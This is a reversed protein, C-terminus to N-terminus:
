SFWMQFPLNMDTSCKRIHVHVMTLIQYKSLTATCRQWTPATKCRKESAKLLKQLEPILCTKFVNLLMAKRFEIMKFVFEKVMNSPRVQITQPRTSCEIESRIPTIRLSASCLCSTTTTTTSSSLSSSCTKKDYNSQETFRECSGVCKGILLKCQKQIPWEVGCNLYICQIRYLRHFEETPQDWVLPNHFIFIPSHAGIDPLQRVNDHYKQLIHLPLPSIYEWMTYSFCRAHIMLAWFSILFDHHFWQHYHNYLFVLRPIGNNNDNNSNNNYDDPVVATSSSLVDDCDTSSSLVDDCDTSSSLVDDCDTSSSLVGDCNTTTTTTTTIVIDGVVIPPQPEAGICSCSASIRDSFPHELEILVDDIYVFDIVSVDDTNETQVWFCRAQCLLTKMLMLKFMDFTAIGHRWNMFVAYMQAYSVRGEMVYHQLSKPFQQLDHNPYCRVPESEM